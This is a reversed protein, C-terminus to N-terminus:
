HGTHMQQGHESHDVTETMLSQLPMWLTWLGFLCLMFGAVARTTKKRLARSFFSIGLMAPLTGAGMAIMLLGSEWASNSTTAAWALTSYVLGCPLWGWIAGIALAHSVKRVPLWRAAHTSLKRWSPALPKELWALGHWINALYLGMGILLLGAVIRLLLGLDSVKGATVMLGGLLLGLLGYSLLRGFQFTVVLLNQRGLNLEPATRFAAAIGGCMFLCHASSAFGILLASVLNVTMKQVKVAKTGLLRKMM